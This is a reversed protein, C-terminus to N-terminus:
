VESEWGMKRRMHGNTVLDQLTKLFLSERGVQGHESVAGLAEPRTQELVRWRGEGRWGMLLTMEAPLYKNLLDTCRGKNEKSGTM